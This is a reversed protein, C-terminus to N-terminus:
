APKPMPWFSPQCDATLVSLALGPVQTVLADARPRVPLPGTAIVVDPSHVQYVGVLREVPVAMAQAVPCPQHHRSM